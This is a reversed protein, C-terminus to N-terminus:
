DIVLGTLLEVVAGVGILSSHGGTGRTPWSGDFCVAIDIIDNDNIGEGIKKYVNRVVYVAHKLV